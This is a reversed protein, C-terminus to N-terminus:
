KGLLSYLPSTRETLLCKCSTELIPCLNNAITLRTGEDVCVRPIRRRFKAWPKISGRVWTAPCSGKTGTRAWHAPCTVVAGVIKRKSLGRTRVRVRGRKQDHRGSLNARKSVRWCTAVRRRRDFFSALSFPSVYLPLRSVRLSSFEHTAYINSTLKRHIM